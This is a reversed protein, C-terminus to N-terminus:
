ELSLQALKHRLCRVEPVRDLGLLKGLEGPAEYQLQEVTGIGCLAMDALLTVVQLTTYYGSLSPFTTELHEFLGNAALAPLACLVGGFSVDRCEEFRTPAGHLIGMAALVREGPRTCAVGMDASRDAVSRESKDSVERVLAAPAESGSPERLRGHNIAKRLTDYAVGLQDAVERRSCGGGLLEEARATVPETMVTAGRGKRPQYFSQVGDDRYKKVSRKVSNASVGFTRVIELQRCVGQCVLQATFMRFSRRDEEPHRFIPAVGVLYTWEGSERVVSIRENIRTAGDPILPLLAQPV